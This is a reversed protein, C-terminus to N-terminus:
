RARTLLLYFFIHVKTMIAIFAGNAISATFSSILQPSMITQKEKEDYLLQRWIIPGLTKYVMVAALLGIVVLIFFMAVSISVTLRRLKSKMPLFPELKNTIPNLKTASVKSQYEFRVKEENFEADSVDWQACLESQRRKWLELFVVAWIAMFLQFIM